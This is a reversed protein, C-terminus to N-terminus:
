VVIYFGSLGMTGLLVQSDVILVIDMAAVALGFLGTTELLVQSDVILAIDM